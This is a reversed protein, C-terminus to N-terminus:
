LKADHKGKRKAGQWAFHISQGLGPEVIVNVVTVRENELFGSKTAQELEQETRVLFGNGGCMTALQEYRTEYLLSTSRLGKKIADESKTRNSTTKDQLVRWAEETMADGHYVGSNNM